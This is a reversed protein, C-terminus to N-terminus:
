EEAPRVEPVPTMRVAAGRVGKIKWGTRELELSVVEDARTGDRYLVAVHIEATTETKAGKTIRIGRVEGAAKRAPTTSPTEDAPPPEEPAPAPAPPGYGALGYHLAIVKWIKGLHSRPDPPIAFQTSKGEQPVSITVVRGQPEIWVGFADGVIRLPVYFHGDEMFPAAEMEFNRDALVATRSGVAVVLRAQGKEATVTGQDYKVTTGVWEFIARMPMFVHGDRTVPLVDFYLGPKEAAAAGMALTLAVVPLVLRM